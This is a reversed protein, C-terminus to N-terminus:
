NRVSTSDMRHVQDLRVRPGGRKIAGNRCFFSFFFFFSSGTEDNVHHYLIERHRKRKREEKRKKAGLKHIFRATAITPWERQIILATSVAMIAASPGNTEVKILMKSYNFDSSHWRCRLNSSSIVLRSYVLIYAKENYNARHLVIDHM